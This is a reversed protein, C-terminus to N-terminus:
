CFISYVSLARSNNSRGGGKNVFIMLTSHARIMCDIFCLEYQKTDKQEDFMVMHHVVKNNADVLIREPQVHKPCGWSTLYNYLFCEGIQDTWAAIDQVTVTSSTLKSALSCTKFFDYKLEESYRTREKGVELLCKSVLDMTISM